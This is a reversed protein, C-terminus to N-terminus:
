EPAQKTMEAAWEVAPPADMLPRWWGDATRERIFVGRRLERLSTTEVGLDTPNELDVSVVVCRIDYEDDNPAAPPLETLPLWGMTRAHASAAQADFSTPVKSTDSAARQEQHYKDACKDCPHYQGHVSCATRPDGYLEQLLSSVRERLHEPAIAGAAILALEARMARAKRDTDYARAFLLAVSDPVNAALTVSAQGDGIVIENADPRTANAVVRVSGTNSLMLPINM